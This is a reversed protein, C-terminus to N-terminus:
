FNYTASSFLKECEDKDTAYVSSTLSLFISIFLIKM